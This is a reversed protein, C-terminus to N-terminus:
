ESRSAIFAFFAERNDFVHVEEGRARLDAHIRLQDPTPVEGSRKFEVWISKGRGLKVLWAPPIFLRDPWSRFGLGNMKRALWGLDKAKDVCAREIRSELVQKKRTFTRANM